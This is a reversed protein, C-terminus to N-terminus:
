VTTNSNDADIPVVVHNQSPENSHINKLQSAFSKNKVLKSLCEIMCDDTM